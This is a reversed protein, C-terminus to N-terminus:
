PMKLMQAHKVWPNKSRYLPQKQSKATKQKTKQLKATRRKKQLQM